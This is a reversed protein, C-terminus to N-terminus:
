GKIAHRRACTTHLIKVVKGNATLKEVLVSKESSLSKLEKVLLTLENDDGGILKLLIDLPKEEGEELYYKVVHDIIYSTKKVQTDCAELEGEHVPTLFHYSRLQQTMADISLGSQHVKSYFQKLVAVAREEEM